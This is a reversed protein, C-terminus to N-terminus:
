IKGEYQGRDGEIQQQLVGVKHSKERLEVEMEQLNVEM